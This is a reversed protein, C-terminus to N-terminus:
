PERPERVGTAGASEREGARGRPVSGPAAAVEGRRLSQNKSRAGQWPLAGAGLSAGASSERPRRRDAPRM